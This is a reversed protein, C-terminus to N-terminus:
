SESESSLVTLSSYERIRAFGGNVPLTKWSSILLSIRARQLVFFVSSKNRAKNIFDSSNNKTLYNYFEDEKTTNKIIYNLEEEINSRILEIAGLNEEKLKESKYELDIMRNNSLILGSCTVCFLSIISFTILSMILISGKNKRLFM